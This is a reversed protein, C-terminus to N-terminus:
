NNKSIKEEIRNLMNSLYFDRVSNTSTRPLIVSSSVTEALNHGLDVGNRSNLDSDIDYNEALYKVNSVSKSRKKWGGTNGGYIRGCIANQQEDHLEYWTKKPEDKRM